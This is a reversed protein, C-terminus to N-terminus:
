DVKQEFRNTVYTFMQMKWGSVSTTFTPPKNFGNFPATSSCGLDDRLGLHSQLIIIESGVKTEPQGGVDVSTRSFGNLRGHSSNYINQHGPRVRDGAFDTKINTPKIRFRKNGFRGIRDIIPM